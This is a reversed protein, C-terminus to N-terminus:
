LRQPHTVPEVCEVEDARHSGEINLSARGRRQALTEDVQGARRRLGCSEGLLQQLLVEHLMVAEEILLAKVIVKRVLSYLM